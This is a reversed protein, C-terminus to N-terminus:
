KLKEIIKERIKSGCEECHKPIMSLPIMQEDSDTPPKIEERWNRKPKGNRATNVGRIGHARRKHIGLMRNVIKPNKHSIEAECGPVDCKVVTKAM